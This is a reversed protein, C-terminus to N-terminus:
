IERIFPPPLFVKREVCICITILNIIPCLPLVIEQISCWQGWLFGGMGGGAPAPVPLCPRLYPYVRACAYGMFYSCHSTKRCSYAPILVLLYDNANVLPLILYLNCPSLIERCFLRCSFINRALCYTSGWNKGVKAGQIISCVNIFIIVTPSVLYMKTVPPTAEDKPLPM